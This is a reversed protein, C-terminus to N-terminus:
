PVIVVFPQVKPRPQLFQLLPRPAAQEVYVAAPPLHVTVQTNANQPCTGAACSASVVYYIVQNM